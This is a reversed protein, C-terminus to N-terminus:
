MALGGKEFKSWGGGGGGGCVCVCVCMGQQRWGGDWSSKRNGQKKPQIPLQVVNSTSYPDVCKVGQHRLVLISKIHTKHLLADLKSFDSVFNSKKM